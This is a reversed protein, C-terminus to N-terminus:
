SKDQNLYYETHEGLKPAAARIKGPTRSLKIPIGIHKVPIGDQEIAEFMKRAQVQPHNVLEAFTLVPSVCAEADEFIDMWEALTKTYMVTQIDHKLKYQVEDPENLLPIWEPKGLKQCFIRWFKMELAGVALWRGDKTQYVEYCALGGSLMQEGRKSPINKMLYNPLTSQLLSIVGDMMSIDIFQGKGSKERELLALLIGTVAPYAGGALDAVQVAPVIPKGDKEGMLELLGAYSIYNIDHGPMEAYPGTQGYGSIACYILRPNIKELVPFDLGLRKMVGPRFSEVVVDAKGVMQLFQDKGEDTKLDLTVSKKNRNLSHFMVSNEDIKPEYHRAYDGLEPAEIKIVEAGFDALLMTCFPGPLLRSLDLVRISQLPFM